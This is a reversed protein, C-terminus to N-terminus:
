QYKRCRASMAFDGTCYVPKKAEGASNDQYGNNSYRLTPDVYTTPEPTYGEMAGLSPQMRQLSNAKPKSQEEIEEQTFAGLRIREKAAIEPNADAWAKVSPNAELYADYNCKYDRLVTACDLQKPKNTNALAPEITSAMANLPAEGSEIAQIEAITRQRGMALGSVRYLESTLKKVPKNNKFKFQMAVKRGEADYGDITFDFDHNKALFGLLGIGGFLITTAVGTGVSTSSEGNVSWYSIRSPPISGQRSRVGQSSVNITCDAGGCLADYSGSLAPIPALAAITAVSLTLGLFKKM